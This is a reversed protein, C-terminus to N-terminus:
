CTQSVSITNGVMINYRSVKPKKSIILEMNGGGNIQCDDNGPSPESQCVSVARDESPTDQCSDSDQRM